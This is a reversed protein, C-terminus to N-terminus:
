YIRSLNEPVLCPVFEIMYYYYSRKDLIAICNWEYDYGVWVHYEGLYTVL